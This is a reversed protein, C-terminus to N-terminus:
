GGYALDADGKRSGEIYKCQLGQVEALLTGDEDM